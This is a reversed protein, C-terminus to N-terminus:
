YNKRIIEIKKVKADIGNAAAELILVGENPYKYMDLLNKLTELIKISLPETM